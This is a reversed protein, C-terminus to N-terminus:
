VVDVAQFGHGFALEALLQGVISIQSHSTGYEIESGGLDVQGNSLKHLRGLQRLHIEAMIQIERGSWPPVEKRRLQCEDLGGDRVRVETSWDRMKRVLRVHQPQQSHLMRAPYVEIYIDKHPDQM